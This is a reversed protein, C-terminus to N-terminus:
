QSKLYRAQGSARLEDLTKGVCNGGGHGGVAKAHGQLSITGVMSDSAAYTATGDESIRSLHFALYTTKSKCIVVVPFEDLPEQARVIAGTAQSFHLSVWTAVLISAIIKLSRSVNCGSASTM